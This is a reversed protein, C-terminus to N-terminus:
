SLSLTTLIRFLVMGIILSSIVLIVLVKLFSKLLKIFLTFLMGKAFILGSISFRLVSILFSFFKAIGVLIEIPSCSRLLEMGVKALTWFKVSITMLNGNSSTFFSM